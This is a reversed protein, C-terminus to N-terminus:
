ALSRSSHVNSSILVESRLQHSHGVDGDHGFEEIYRRLQLRSIVRLACYVSGDLNPMAWKHLHSLQKFYVIQGVEATGRSLM